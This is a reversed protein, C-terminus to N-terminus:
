KQAPEAERPTLTRGKLAPHDPGHRTARFLAFGSVGADKLNGEIDSAWDWVVEGDSTVEFVRGEPGECILTNGNPLRQCGSIFAAYFDPRSTYRWVPEEPGFAAGTRTFGKGPELPLALEEVSSYEGDPREQGNNFVLLHGAGPHGPPIWQVNHQYFLRRDAQTGAGHNRPNGWRWLIEGGQRYRGGSRGAAQDTTTSHDIVLIESLHPSSLAILDLEPNYDLANTHLWDSGHGGPQALAPVGGVVPSPADDEEEGGAYGLARMEAELEERRRRDEETEPAADRHDYNIDIRGPHAAIAGHNDLAPDLDQVLHDWVHWEWVIEGGDAGVPQIELVADPWLGKDPTVKPDRGAAICDERYRHEWAIVLVNGNPMAIADHHTMQDENALEYSWLLEGDWGIREIRGCIGGGAFVHTGELRAHRLISGDPLLQVSSPGHQSEWRHVERGQMDILYTTKSALPAILTYGEFAGPKALRLGRTQDQGPVAQPAAQPALAALLPLLM